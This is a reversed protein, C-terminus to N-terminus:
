LSTSNAGLVLDLDMYVAGDVPNERYAGIRKFGMAEYMGIAAEMSPLTDLRLKRYGAARAHGVIRGALRRGLGLGRAGPQV